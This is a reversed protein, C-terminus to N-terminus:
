SLHSTPFPEPDSLRRVANETVRSVGRDVTLSGIWAISGVSFVAGGARTEFFVAEAYREDRNGQPEYGEGLPESRAVVLAHPPTGASTDAVDCEYGAAAGLITGASGFGDGDLGEFLFAARPDYSAATRRYGRGQGFGMAAYVSGAITALNPLRHRWPGGPEGTSALSAEGPASEWLGGGSARRRLELVHPRDPPTAVVADMGNGGLYALRGGRDLWGEVARMMTGSWYEPHGGTVLLGTAGGLVADPADHLDHDTVVVYRLGVRELWTILALDASLGHAAGTLWYAYDPRMTLSPRLWTTFVVGSGDRHRNYLSLLGNDAAYDDRPGRVVPVHPAFVPENAYALYTFTPLLVRITREDPPVGTRVAFVLWDREQDTEVQLAYVGSRLDAPLRYEVTVPWRADDLDDSHLHIAGYQDPAHIWATEQGDWNHGTVARTPSNWTRGGDSGDTRFVGSTALGQSFDWRVLPAADEPPRRGSAVAAIRRSIWADGVVDAQWIAPEEVKGDLRHRPVGESSVDAGLRITTVRFADPLSIGTVAHQSRHRGGPWARHASLAARDTSFSLLVLSWVREPIRVETRVRTEGDRSTLMVSGDPALEVSLLPAGEHDCFQTLVRRADIAATPCVWLSFVSGGVHAEVDTPVDLTVLSGAAFGHRGPAPISGPLSDVPDSVVAGDRSSARGARMRVLSVALDSDSSIHARVMDGPLYSPRDVYGTLLAPDASTPSADDSM